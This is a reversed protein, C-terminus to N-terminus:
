QVFLSQLLLLDIRRMVSEPKSAVPTKRNRTNRRYPNKCDPSPNELEPGKQRTKGTITTSNTQMTNRTDIRKRDRGFPPRLLLVGVWYPTSHYGRVSDQAIRLGQDCTWDRRIFRSFSETFREIFTRDTISSTQPKTRYIPCMNAGPHPPYTPLSDIGLSEGQAGLEGLSICSIGSAVMAFLCLM